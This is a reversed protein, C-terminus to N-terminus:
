VQAIYATIRITHVAGTLTAGTTFVLIRNLKNEDSLPNSSLPDTSPMTVYGSNLEFHGVREGKRHLKRVVGEIITFGADTMPIKSNNNSYQSLLTLLDAQLKVVFWDASIREDIFALDSQDGSCLRGDFTAGVSGMKAYFNANKGTITLQQTPTLESETVGVINKHAWTTTGEDPDLSGAKGTLGADLREADTELYFLAARSNDSDQLTSALDDSASSVPIDSDASQAILLKPNTQETVWEAARIIDIETRSELILFYWNPDEAEIEDLETKISKNATTESLTQGGTVTAPTEPDFPTGAVNAEIDFDNGNDTLTVPEAGATILVILADVIDAQTDLALATYTYVNGNITVGYVSGEVADNISLNWDEKVDAGVKGVKTINPKFTQDYISDLASRIGANLEADADWDSDQTYSRTYEGAFTAGGAVLPIGLGDVGTQISGLVLTIDVVKNDLATM